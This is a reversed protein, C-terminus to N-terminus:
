LEQPERGDGVHLPFSADQAQRVRDAFASARRAQEVLKRLAVSAGGPQTSAMGTAGAVAHSRTGGCRAQAARDAPTAARPKLPQSRRRAGGSDPEVRRGRQRPLGIEISESSRADFVLIQAQPNADSVEKVKVAVEALSGSAICHTGEFCHLESHEQGHSERPDSLSFVNYGPLFLADFLMRTYIILAEFDIVQYAPVPLFFAVWSVPDSRPKKQRSRNAAIEPYFVRLVRFHQAPQFESV